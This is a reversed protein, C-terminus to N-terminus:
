RLRELTVGPLCKPHGPPFPLGQCSWGTGTCRCRPVCYLAHAALVGVMGLFRAFESM